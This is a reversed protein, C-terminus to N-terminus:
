PLPCTSGWASWTNLDPSLPPVTLGYALSGCCFAQHLYEASSALLTARRTFRLYRWALPIGSRITRETRIGCRAEGGCDVRCIWLRNKAMGPFCTEGLAKALLQAGLCVGLM